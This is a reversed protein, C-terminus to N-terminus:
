PGELHGLDRCVTNHFVINHHRGHLSLYHLYLNVKALQLFHSNLPHKNSYCWTTQGSQYMHSWASLLPFIKCTMLVYSPIQELVICRKKKLYMSEITMRLVCLYTLSIIKREGRHGQNTEGFESAWAWTQHCVWQAQLSAWFLASLHGWLLPCIEPHLALILISTFLFNLKGAVNIM